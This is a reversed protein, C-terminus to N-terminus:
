TFSLNLQLGGQAARMESEVNSSQVQTLQRTVKTSGYTVWNSLRVSKVSQSHASVESLAEQLSQSAELADDILELETLIAEALKSNDEELEALM